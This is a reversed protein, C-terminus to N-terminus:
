KRCRSRVQRRMNRLPIHVDGHVARDVLVVCARCGLVRGKGERTRTGNHPNRNTSIEQKRGVANGPNASVFGGWGVCRPLTAIRAPL